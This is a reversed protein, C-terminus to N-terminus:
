TSTCLLGPRSAASPSGWAQSSGPLTFTFPTQRDVQNSITVCANTISTFAM